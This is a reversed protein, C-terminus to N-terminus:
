IITNMKIVNLIESFVHNKFKRRFCWESIYSSIMEKRKNTISRYKRKFAGWLSEIRNTHVGEETVFQNKHIVVKHEYGLNSLNNYGRWGDSHIVSGQRIYKLIIDELTRQDRKITQVMFVNGEEDVGGVIWVDQTKLIRGVHYKRKCIQSEDIQVEVGPGGIEVPNHLFYELSLDRMFSKWDCCTRSSGLQCERMLNKQSSIEYSWYYIIKLIQYLSLHSQSFFTGHRVSVEKQCGREHCRFCHQDTLKPRTSLAMANGCLCQRETPLLGLQQLFLIIHFKKDKFYAIDDAILNDLNSFVFISPLM